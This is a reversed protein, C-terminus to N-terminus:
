SVDLYLSARYRHCVVHVINGAESLYPIGIKVGSKNHTCINSVPLHAEATEHVPKESVGAKGEGKGVGRGHSPFHM